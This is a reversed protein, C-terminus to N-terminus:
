KTHQILTAHYYKGNKYAHKKLEGCIKGGSKVNSKISAKNNSFVSTWLSRLNLYNFAYKKILQLSESGYGYNRFEKFILRGYMANRNVWNISSLSATGINENSKLNCITFFFSNDSTKHDKYYRKLELKNKPFMIQIGFESLNNLHQQYTETIDKEEFPRLYIKKGKLFIINKFKKKM